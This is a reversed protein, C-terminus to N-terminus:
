KWTVSDGKDTIKFFACNNERCKEKFFATKDYESGFHMPVFLGTPIKKIFQEAGLGCDQGLRPDIPFMLVDVNQTGDAIAELESLYFKESEESEERSAENRWHWNNLDGAHFLTKGEASVRYSVGEDTSGFAKVKIMGDDFCDLKRLATINDPKLKVKKYVDKSVIYKCSGDRKDWQFIQPNYHDAHFHSVFFYIPKNVSKVLREIMGDDIYYDFILLSHELEISFCSHYDYTIKM